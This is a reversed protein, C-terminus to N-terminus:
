KNNNNNNNNKNNNNGVSPPVTITSIQQNTLEEMQGDMQRNTWM